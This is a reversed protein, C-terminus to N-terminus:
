GHIESIYNALNEIESDYNICEKKNWFVNRRSISMIRVLLVPYVIDQILILKKNYEVTEVVM